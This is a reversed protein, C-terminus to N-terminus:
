LRLKQVLSKKTSIGMLILVFNNRFRKYNNSGNSKKTQIQFNLIKVVLFQM